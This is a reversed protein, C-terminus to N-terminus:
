PEAGASFEFPIWVKCADCWALGDRKNFLPIYRRETRLMEDIDHQCNKILERQRAESLM